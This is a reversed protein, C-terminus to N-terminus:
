HLKVGASGSESCSHVEPTWSRCALGPEIEAQLARALEFFASDYLPDSWSPSLVLLIAGISSPELCDLSAPDRSLSVRDRWVRAGLESWTRDLDFGETVQVDAHWSPYICSYSDILGHELSLGAWNGPRVRTPDGSSSFLDHHSDLNVVSSCNLRELLRYAAAHSSVAFSPVGVFRLLAQPNGFLPFDQRLIEFSSGGRSRARERWRECRDFELDPTGWLPSDFVHELSGSFYDWDVSFLTSM